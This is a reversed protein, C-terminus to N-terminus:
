WWMLRIIQSRNQVRLIVRVDPLEGREGHESRIEADASLENSRTELAVCAKESQADCLAQHMRWQKPLEVAAAKNLVFIVNLLLHDVQQRRLIPRVDCGEYSRVIARTMQQLQKLAKRLENIDCSPLLDRVRSRLDQGHAVRQQKESEM